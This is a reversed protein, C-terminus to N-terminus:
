YSGNAREKILIDDPDYPNRYPVPMRTLGSQEEIGDSLILGDRYRITEWERQCGHRYGEEFAEALKRDFGM